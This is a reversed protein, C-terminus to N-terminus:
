PMPFFHLLLVKCEGSISNTIKAYPPRSTLLEIVTCGLSWIDSKTTVGKMKIVKPAMWNLTGAVDKMGQEMAHLNLLIGFDSLKINGAKTM